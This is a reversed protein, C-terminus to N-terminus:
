YLEKVRTHWFSIATLFAWILFFEILQQRMILGTEPGVLVRLFRILKKSYLDFYVSMHKCRSRPFTLLHIRHRSCFQVALFTTEM